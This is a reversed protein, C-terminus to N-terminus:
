ELGVTMRKLVDNKAIFHHYLSALVHLVLLAAVFLWAIEHVEEWFHNIEDGTKVPLTFSFLGFFKIPRDDTAITMPGSLLQVFVAIYIGWHASRAILAKWAPTGDPASPTVNMFRWVLRGTMLFLVLLGISTHIGRIEMKEPGREMGAQELGLYILALIGITIIWHLAKALSGFEASTNRLGM